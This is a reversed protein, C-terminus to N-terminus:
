TTKIILSYGANGTVPNKVLRSAYKEDMIIYFIVKPVDRNIYKIYEQHLVHKDTVLDSVEFCEDMSPFNLLYKKPDNLLTNYASVAGPTLQM